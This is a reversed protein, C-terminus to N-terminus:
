PRRSDSVSAKTVLPPPLDEIAVASTAPDASLEDLSGQGLGALKASVGDVEVVDDRERQAPGVEGFIQSWGM